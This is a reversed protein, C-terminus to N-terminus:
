FAGALPETPPRMRAWAELDFRAYLVRGGFKHFAPGGGTVRYHKLTQISVGLFPAAEHATLFTREDLKGIGADDGTWPPFAAPLGYPPVTVDSALLWAIGTREFEDAFGHMWSRVREVIDLTPSAGNRLDRVFSSKGVAKTGLATARTRVRAAILFAEVEHQFRPGIPSIDMFRLMRDAPDLEPSGGRKVDAVFGPEGLAREGLERGKMRSRELYASIVRRFEADLMTM